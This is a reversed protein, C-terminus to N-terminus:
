AKPQPKQWSPACRPTVASPLLSKTMTSAMNRSSDKQLLAHRTSSSKGKSTENLKSRGVPQFHSSAQRLNKLQGPELLSQNEEDMAKQWLDADSRSLAEARTTPERKLPNGRSSAEGMPTARAAPSVPHSVRSLGCAGSQENQSGGTSAEGTPTAGADLSVLHSV